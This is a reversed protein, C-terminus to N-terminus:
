LRLSTRFYCVTSAWHNYTHSNIIYNLFAQQEAITLAIRTKADGDKM